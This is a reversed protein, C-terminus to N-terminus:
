RLSPSRVYGYPAGKKKRKSFPITIAAIKL